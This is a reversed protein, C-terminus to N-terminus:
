PMKQIIIKLLEYQPLDGNKRIKADEYPGCIRRYFETDIHEFVGSILDRADQSQDPASACAIRVAVWEVIHKIARKSGFPIHNREEEHVSIVRSLPVERFLEAIRKIWGTTIAFAWYSMEPLFELIMTHLAYNLEGAFAEYSKEREIARRIHTAALGIDVFLTQLDQEKKVDKMKQMLPALYPDINKRETM